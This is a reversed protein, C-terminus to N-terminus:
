PAAMITTLRPTTQRWAPRVGTAGSRPMSVIPAACVEGLNNLTTPEDPNITLAARLWGEAAPYDKREIAILGLVGLAAFDNGGAGISLRMLTETEDARGALFAQAGLTFM